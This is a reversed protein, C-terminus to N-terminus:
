SSVRARRLTLAAAATVGSGVGTVTLIAIRAWLPDFPVPPVARAFVAADALGGFIALCAGAVALAFSTAEPPGGPRRLRAVLWGAAAVVALASLVPWPQGTALWVLL